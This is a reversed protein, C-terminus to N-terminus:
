PYSFRMLARANVSVKWAPIPGTRPAYPCVPHMITRFHLAIAVLFVLQVSIARFRRFDPCVLIGFSAVGGVGRRGDM